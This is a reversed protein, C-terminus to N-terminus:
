APYYIAWEKLKVEWRESHCLFVPIDGLNTARQDVFYGDSNIWEVVEKAGDQWDQYRQNPVEVGSAEDIITKNHPNNM